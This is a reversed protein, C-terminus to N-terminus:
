NRCLNGGGSSVKLDYNLILLENGASLERCSDHPPLFPASRKAVRSKGAPFRPLSALPPVDNRHNM